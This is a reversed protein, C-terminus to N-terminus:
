GEPIFNGKAFEEYNDIVVNGKISGSSIVESDVIVEQQYNSEDSEDGSSDNNQKDGEDSSDDENTGKEEPEMYYPKMVSEDSNQQEETTAEEVQTEEPEPTEEHNTIVTDDGKKLTTKVLPPEKPAAEKIDKKLVVDSRAIVADGKKLTTNVIVEHPKDVVKGISKIIDSTDNTAVVSDGKKLKTKMPIMTIGGKIKISQNDPKYNNLDVANYSKGCRTCTLNNYGDDYDIFGGCITGLPTVNRCILKSSDLRYIYPYDLLVPGRNTVGWNLFYKTGVDDMVYKGLLSDLIDFIDPALIAFEEKTKIPQVREAFGVTGCPTIQIMKACFPKILEQLRYEAPNDKLGVRDIAVKAVINYDELHRFVIRNTGGAFRKFGNREMIQKIAALKKDIAGAYRISTAIFNLRAVDNPDIYYSWHPMSIMLYQLEADTMNNDELKM